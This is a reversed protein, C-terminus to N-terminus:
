SAFYSYSSVSFGLSSSTEFHDVLDFAGSLDLLYLCVTDVAYFFQSM